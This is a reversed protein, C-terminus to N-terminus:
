DAIYGNANAGRRAKSNGASAYRPQKAVTKGSSVKPTKGEMVKVPKSPNRSLGHNPKQSFTDMTKGGSERNRRKPEAKQSLSVGEATWPKDGSVSKNRTIVDVIAGEQPATKSAKSPNRSSAVKQSAAITPEQRVGRNRTKPTWPESVKIEGNTVPM